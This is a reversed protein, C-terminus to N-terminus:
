SVELGADANKSNCDMVAPRMCTRNTRLGTIHFDASKILSGYVMYTGHIVYLLIKEQVAITASWINKYM